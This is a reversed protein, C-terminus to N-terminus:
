GTKGDNSLPYLVGIVQQFFQVQQSDLKQLTAGALLGSYIQGNVMWKKTSTPSCVQVLTTSSLKVCPQSLKSLNQKSTRL